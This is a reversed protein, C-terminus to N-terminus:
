RECNPGSACRRKGALTQPTHQLLGLIALLTVIPLTIVLLRLRIM